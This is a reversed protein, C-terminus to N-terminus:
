FKNNVYNMTQENIRKAQGESTAAAVASNGAKTAEISAKNKADEAAAVQQQLQEGSLPAVWTLGENQDKVLM